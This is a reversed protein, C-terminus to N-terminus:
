CKLSHGFKPLLYELFAKKKVINNLRSYSVRTPMVRGVLRGIEQERDLITQREQTLIANLVAIEREKEIIEKEQTLQVHAVIEQEQQIARRLGAIDHDKQKLLKTVESDNLSDKSPPCPDSRTQKLNDFEIKMQILEEEIQKSAEQEDTIKKQLMAINRDKEVILESNQSTEAESAKYTEAELKLRNIEAQYSEIASSNERLDEDKTDAMEQLCKIDLDKQQNQVKMVLVEKQLNQNTAEMQEVTRVDQKIKEIKGQLASERLDLNKTLEKQIMEIDAMKQESQKKMEEKVEELEENKKDVIRMLDEMKDKLADNATILLEMERNAEEIDKGNCEDTTEKSEREKPRLKEEELAMRLEFIESEKEDVLAHMEKELENIEENKEELTQQFMKEIDLKTNSVEDSEKRM